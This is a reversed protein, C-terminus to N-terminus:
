GPPGLHPDPRHPPRAPPPLRLRGRTRATAKVARRPSVNPRGAVSCTRLLHGSNAVVNIAWIGDKKPRGTAVKLVPRWAPSLGPPRPRVDAHGLDLDQVEASADQGGASPEALQAPLGEV